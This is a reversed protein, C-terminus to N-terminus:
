CRKCPCYYRWRGLDVANKGYNVILERVKEREIYEKDKM